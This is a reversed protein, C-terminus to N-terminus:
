RGASDTPLNVYRLKQLSYAFDQITARSGGRTLTLPLTMRIDVAGDSISASVEPNGQEYGLGKATFAGGDVCSSLDYEIFTTILGETEEDPNIGYLEIARVTKQKLCDDVMLKLATREGQLDVQQELSGVRTEVTQVRVYMALAFVSLIVLGLVIFVTLQAKQTM